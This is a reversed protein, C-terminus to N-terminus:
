HGSPSSQASGTGAGAAQQAAERQKLSALEENLRRATKEDGRAVAINMLLEVNLSLEPFAEYSRLAYGYASDLNKRHFDILGLRYLSLYDSRDREAAKQFLAYAEDVKQESLQPLLQM